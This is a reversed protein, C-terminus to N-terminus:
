KKKEEKVKEILTVDSYSKLTNFCADTITYVTKGPALEVEEKPKPQGGVPYSRVTGGKIVDERGVIFSRQGQIMIKVAM